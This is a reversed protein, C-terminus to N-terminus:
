AAGRMSDAVLAWAADRDCGSTDNLGEAQKHAAERSAFLGYQPCPVYGPQGKYAMGVIFGCDPVAVATFAFSPRQRPQRGNLIPRMYTEDTILDTVEWFRGMAERVRETIGRLGLAKAKRQDEEGYVGELAAEYADKEQEAVRRATAEDVMAPSGATYRPRVNYYYRM